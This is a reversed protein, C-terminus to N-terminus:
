KDKQEDKKNVKLDPFMLDTLAEFTEKTPKRKQREGDFHGQWTM